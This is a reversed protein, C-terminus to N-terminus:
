DYATSLKLEDVSASITNDIHQYFNLEFAKCELHSFASGNKGGWLISFRGIMLKWSSTQALFLTFIITIYLLVGRAWDLFLMINGYKPHAVAM